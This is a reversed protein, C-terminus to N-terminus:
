LPISVFVCTPMLFTCWTCTNRHCSETPQEIAFTCLMCINGDVHNLQNNQWYRVDRAFTEMWTIWNATIQPSWFRVCRAFIEMLSESPQEILFTCLTCINGDCSETPQEILFACLTCINGDCSETPQEILVICLTCINGDCSETPQEILFMCLTCINGDCSETPQEILVMCLTCINGDVHNLQNFTPPGGFRVYRALREMWTIWNSTADIIICFFWKKPRKRGRSATMRPCEKRRLFFKFQGARWVRDSRCQSHYMTKNTNWTSHTPLPM